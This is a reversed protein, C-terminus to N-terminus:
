YQKVMNKVQEISFKREDDSKSGSFKQLFDMAMSNFTAENSAVNALSM